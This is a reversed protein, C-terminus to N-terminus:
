SSWLLHDEFQKSLVSQIYQRLVTNKVSCNWKLQLNGLHKLKPCLFTMYVKCLLSHNKNLCSGNSYWTIKKVWMDLVVNIENTTITEYISLLLVDNIKKTVAKPILRWVTPGLTQLIRLLHKTSNVLNLYNHTCNNIYLYKYVTYSNIILELSVCHSQWSQGTKSLYNIFCVTLLVQLLLYASISITILM